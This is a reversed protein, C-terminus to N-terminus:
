CTANILQYDNILLDQCWQQILQIAKVPVQEEDYWQTLGECMQSFTKSQIAHFSYVEMATMSRFHIEIGKRWILWPTAQARKVPPQLEQDQQAAKWLQNVNHYLTLTQISPHFKLQLKPWNDPSIQTLQQLTLIPADKADLAKGLAWEFEATEHLLLHQQYPPTTALFQAFDQGFYRVSYYHSPMAKLYKKGLQSFKKDGLIANITPYDKRLIEILRIQYANKYIALRQQNDKHNSAVIAQSFDSSQGLLYAQFDQQLAKLKM